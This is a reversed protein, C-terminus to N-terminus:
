HILACFMSITGSTGEGKCKVVVLEILTLCKNFSFIEPFLDNELM